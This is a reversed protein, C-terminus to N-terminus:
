GSKRALNLVRLFAESFLNVLEVVPYQAKIAEAIVNLMQEKGAPQWLCNENVITFYDAGIAMKAEGIKKVFSVADEDKGLVLGLASETKKVLDLVDKDPLTMTELLIPKKTNELLAKAQGPDLGKVILLLNAKGVAELVKKGEENLGKDGFLSGPQDIRIFNVGQSSFVEAWRLEDRISALGKLGAVVTTKAPGRPGMMGGGAPGPGGFATLGKARALKEKAAWLNNLMDVRLADGSLGAKEGVATLQLDVDPDQGDLHTPIFDDLAPTEHNVITGFRWFFAERRRPVIPVKTETALLELAATVFLGSNKLIDPKILDVVDGVRNTKFHSGATNVMFAPVGNYLFATHDSGGPGGRGAIVNDMVDKPLRTKLIEWVEPAYYMGGVNVKGTGHGEMDLNINAITKDLPYVPHDTYYKSGLLGEEEAAWLAFIITRKPKFKNLMLVRATEMVVATGSANDDAGNFVDGTMDVGLHDMHAGVIIFENKLNKDTGTMKALVNQTPRKEDFVVQLNALAQVDLEYSQPKGTAEIQQFFYRPDAKQWKFIFDLVKTELSIIVFDSKYVDKELSRRVFGGTAQTDTRFTLVGRAGHARAAKLRNPLTAEERLTTEFRRPTDTSFLALKDKVDVGSYEDYGKQPASLGYGVFVIEAGLMGSGSFPQQRWDEGYIFERKKNHAIIDLTAGREVAYYEYTMDQYYSAKPGAPELGWEKLKGAVYEAAMRGGSEGSKRGLMADSALAKVYDFAAQGDFTSKKGQSLAPSVLLSAGLILTIVPKRIM